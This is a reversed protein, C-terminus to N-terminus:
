SAPPLRGVCGASAEVLAALAMLEADSGWRGVIQVAVPLGARTFGCPVSVAPHGSLNFLNLYPAWAARIEGSPEGDIVLQDTMKQDVRIPPASTVPTVLWDFEGFWGQVMRFFATRKALARTIETGTTDIGAKLGEAFSPELRSKIEEYRDGIALSWNCRQITMWTPAPPDMPKDHPVIEAGAARLSGLASECLARVEPDLRKNTFLAKWAVKRGALSAPKALLDLARTPAFGVSQPDAAHEGSVVDLALAVDAVSRGILGIHVMNAFAEPVEERPVLGTTPKLGVVNCCAAPLRTSAGADTAVALPGLGAAVAAAAGSSSGAATHEASWPNRTLGALESWAGISHAYEPTTTKGLLIGGAARMRAVVTADREPVHDAFARSGWTTRVGATVLNDKVSFPVGHLPGLPMGARVADDAARAEVLASEACVTIYANVTAQTGEIRALCERVLAESSLRKERIARAADVAFGTALSHAM